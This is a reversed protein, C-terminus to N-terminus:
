VVAQHQHRIGQTAWLPLSRDADDWTEAIACVLFDIVTVPRPDVIKGLVEPGSKCRLLCLTHRVPRKRAKRLGYLSNRYVTLLLFSPLYPSSSFSIVITNILQHGGKKPQFSFPHLLCLRLYPPM